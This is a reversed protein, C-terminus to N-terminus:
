NPSSNVGQLAKLSSQPFSIVPEVLTSLQDTQLVPHDIRQEPVFFFVWFEGM